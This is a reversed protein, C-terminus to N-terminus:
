YRLRQRRLIHGNRDRWRLALRPGMRRPLEADYVNGSVTVIISRARPSGRRDVVQIDHVSDPVLGDIRVKHPVGGASISGIAPVRGNRIITGGGGGTRHKKDILSFMTLYQARGSLLDLARQERAQLITQIRERVKSDAAQPQALAAKKVEALCAVSDRPQSRRPGYSITLAFRRGSPARALRIGSRLVDRGGFESLRQKFVAVDTARTPRRFVAYQARISPAVPGAVLRPKAARAFRVACAPRPLAAREGASVASAAPSPSDSSLMGSALAVGGGTITAAILALGAPRLWAPRRRRRAVAERLQEQLNEFPDRSM